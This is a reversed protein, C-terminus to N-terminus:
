RRFVHMGLAGPPPSEYSQRLVHRFGDAHERAAAVAGAQVRDDARDDPRPHAPSPSRRRGRPSAPARRRAAEAVEPRLLDRPDQGAAPRDDARRRVFGYLSSPPTSFTSASCGRGRARRARRSRRRPCARRRAGPEEGLVAHRDDAHRLRDVVVEGAGVVREPEVGRHRDRGLRDVAQVRRRLRVVADHDDLHHAAVGAPDGHHAADRAAGVDDEDGLLRDVEVLDGLRDALAM